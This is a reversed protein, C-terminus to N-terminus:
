NMVSLELKELRARIDEINEMQNNTKEESHNAEKRNVFLRQRALLVFIVGVIVGLMWSRVEYIGPATPSNFVRQSIFAPAVFSLIAVLGYGFANLGRSKATESFWQCSLLIFVLALLAVIVLGTMWMTEITMLVPIPFTTIVGAVAAAFGITVLGLWLLKRDM